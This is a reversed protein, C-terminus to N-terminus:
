PAQEAAIAKARKLQKIVTNILHAPINTRQGESDIWIESQDKYYGIHLPGQYAECGPATNMHITATVVETVVFETLENSM